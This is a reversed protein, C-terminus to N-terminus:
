IQAAVSAALDKEQQENAPRISIWYLVKGKLVHIAGDALDIYAADGIAPKSKIKAVGAGMDFWQKAEAPSATVYVFFHVVIDFDGGKQSRYTCHSGWKTGFPPILSDEKPAQYPQGLVKQIQAPTLLACNSSPPAAYTNRANGLGFVVIGALILLLRFRMKEGESDLQGPETSPYRNPGELQTELPGSARGSRCPHGLDLRVCV